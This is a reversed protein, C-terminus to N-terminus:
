ATENELLAKRALTMPLSIYKKEMYSLIKELTEKSNDDLVSIEKQFVSNVAKERIVKIQEPIHRFALEVKRQNFIQEFEGLHSSIIEKAGEVENKRFSLNKEAASQLKEMEIYQVNFKVPIEESVDSPVALDLIIKKSKDDKILASYIDATIVPESAGTCTIMVDFPKSFNMLEKLELAVCNLKSALAEANKLNRNFVVFNKFQNKLLFKAMLHNTQGAGIILFRADKNLKNKLLEKGGLSVVSVPKEGIKTNSYVDKAAVVIKDMALRIADSTLNLKKCVEYAERLQRLIEREGVVMSDLSSAVEMLHNIADHSELVISKEAAEEIDFASVNHNVSQFINKLLRKDIKRDSVMFFVIRNCTSLYLLEEMRFKEKLSPLVSPLENAPIVFKGIQKLGIVKHSLTILKYKEM